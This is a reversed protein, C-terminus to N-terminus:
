FVESNILERQLKDIVYDAIANESQGEAGYVNVVIGGSRNMVKSMMDLLHSEGVVIENGPRDGGVLLNNGMAGFITPASLIMAQDYARAFTYRGGSTPTYTSGNSTYSISPATVHLPIPTSLENYLADYDSTLSDKAESSANQWDKYQQEIAQMNQHQIMEYNEFAKGLSDLGDGVTQQSEYLIDMQGAADELGTKFTDIQVKGSQFTTIMDKAAKKGFAQEITVGTDGITQNLTSNIDEANVMMDVATQWAAGMDDTNGSLASISKSLATTLTSVDGGADTFGAMLAIADDVDYGVEKWSASQERVASTISDVSLKGQASGYVFSDMLGTLTEINTAEDESELNYRRMVDVLDNVANVGDVGTASAYKGFLYTAEELADGTLGLRTYLTGGIAEMDKMSMNADNMKLYANYAANEADVLGDGTLLTARIMENSAEQVDNMMQVAQKGLEILEEAIIGIIGAVGASEIASAAGMFSSGFKNVLDEAGSGTEDMEDQITDLEGSAGSAADEVGKLADQAGELKAKNDQLEGSLSSIQGALNQAEDSGEGFELVADIYADRLDDLQSEQDAIEATLQGYASNAEEQYDACDQLASNTDNLAKEADALAGEWSAIEKSGEEYNEKAYELAKNTEEIQKELAAKKKELLETQKANEEISKKEGDFSSELASMQKDLSKTTSIIDNLGKRFEKEGDLGLKVGISTAM